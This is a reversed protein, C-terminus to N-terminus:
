GTSVQPVPVEEYRFYPFRDEFAELLDPRLGDHLVNMARVTREAKPGWSTPGPLTKFVIWVASDGNIDGLRVDFDTILDPLPLRGAIARVKDVIESQKM